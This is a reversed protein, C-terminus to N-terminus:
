HRDVFVQELTAAFLVRELWAEIESPSASALRSQVSESLEGFKLALQKTLTEARGKEIGKAEGKAEGESIWQDLLTM